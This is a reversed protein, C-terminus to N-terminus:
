LSIRKLKIYGIVLVAFFLALVLLVIFQAIDLNYTRNVMAVLFNSSTLLALGFSILLLSISTTGVLVEELVYGSREERVFISCLEKAHKRTNIATLIITLVITSLVVISIYISLTPLLLDSIYLFASGLAITLFLVLVNRLIRFFTERVFDSAKGETIRSVNASIKDVVTKVESPVASSIRAAYNDANRSLKSSILAGLIVSFASLTLFEAHVLGLRTAEYTIVMGFEGVCSATFGIKLSEELSKGTTLWNASTFALFRLLVIIPALLLLPSVINTMGAETGLVVFFVILFMERLPRLYEGIETNKPHASLAIGAAFAGLAPSLGFSRSIVAFLFASGLIIAVGPENIEIVWIFVRRIVTIGVAILITTILISLSLLRILQTPDLSGLRLSPLIALILIAYIDELVMVMLIERRTKESLGLGLLLSFVIATSSFSAVAALILTELFNLKLITGFLLAFLFAFFIEFGLIILPTLNMKRIKEIGVERGIEFVLLTIAVDSFFNLFETNAKLIEAFFLSLLVGTTIYGAIRSFGAREFIYAVLASFGLFVSLLLYIEM